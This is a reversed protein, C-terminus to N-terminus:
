CHFYADHNNESMENKDVKARAEWVTFYEYHLFRAYFLVM